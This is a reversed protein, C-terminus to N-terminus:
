TLLDYLVTIIRAYQWSVSWVCICLTGPVLFPTYLKAAADILGVRLDLLLAGKVSHDSEYVAASLAIEYHHVM